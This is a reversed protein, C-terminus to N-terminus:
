ERAAMGRGCSGEESNEKEGIPPDGENEQRDRKENGSRSHIDRGMIERIHDAGRDEPYQARPKASPRTQPSSSKPKKRLSFGREENPPSLTKVVGQDNRRFSTNM